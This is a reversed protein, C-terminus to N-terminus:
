LSKEQMSSTFEEKLKQRNQPMYTVWVANILLLAGAIIFAVPIGFRSAVIGSMLPGAVNGMYQATQNYGFARGTLSDPIIKKLYTNIAPLLGGLGFGVLFRLLLLQGVHNTFAHLVLLIGVIFLCSSLVKRPGVHDSLRGLFPAAIINSIGSAATVMGAMFAIYSTDTVMEGVYLTLFPQISMISAQLLFTTVFIGGTLTFFAKKNFTKQTDKEKSQSTKKKMETVFLCIVFTIILMSGTIWFVQRLGILDALLGGIVPGILMGSVGGTSLIGLARGSEESPTQSAVLITAAPIFGSVAGMLLRLGVLQYVNQVFGILIMVVAMGLSARILMSKRGHKDALKGWIPSFIAATVFTSCFAISSWIEVHQNEGLQMIYLPLFPIVLSMGAVTCFCGIWCIYLNRKWM